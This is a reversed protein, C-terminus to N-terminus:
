EKTWVRLLVRPRDAWSFSERAARSSSSEPALLLRAMPPSNDSHTPREPGVVRWGSLVGCHVLM